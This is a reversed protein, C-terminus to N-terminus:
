MDITSEDKSSAKEDTTSCKSIHKACPLEKKYRKSCHQCQHLTEEPKSTRLNNENDDTLVDVVKEDILKFIAASSLINMEQTEKQINNEMKSLEVSYIDDNIEVEKNSGFNKRFLNM